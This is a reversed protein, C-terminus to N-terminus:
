QKVKATFEINLEEVFDHIDICLINEESCVDPIKTKKPAPQETTVVVANELQAHAIVWPDAISRGRTADVLRPYKKMIQKLYVQIQENPEKFFAKNKIWQSLEDSVKELERKVEMPSFIVEKKTLQHLISWYGKTFKPSYYRNWPEIFVNTDLCYKKM